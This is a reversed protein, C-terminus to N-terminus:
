SPQPTEPLIWMREPALRASSSTISENPANLEAKRDLGERIEVAVACASSSTAEPETRKPQQLKAAPATCTMEGRVPWCSEFPMPWDVPSAVRTGSRSPSPRGSYREATENMPAIRVSSESVRTCGKVFRAQVDRGLEAPQTGVSM